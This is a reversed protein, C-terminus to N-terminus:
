LAIRSKKRVKFCFVPLYFLLALISFAMGGITGIAFAFWFVEEPGDFLFPILGLITSIITLMTPNIKHNYAKVWQRIATRSRSRRGRREALSRIDQFQNILYIGANVVIGSLMVFAAFGGQDFPFDFAGFVLFVGIFSVPIMLIVAFPLRVSEFTMACMVYIIAIILLLLWAYQIQKGAGWWYDPVDAKYGVPLVEENMYELAEETFRKGLEYSGIFDYVVNVEYSQNNRSIALGSRRASIDGIQSLKVSTSDVPIATNLIHWLDFGDKESSVLRVDAYEGDQLISGINSDYLPSYLVSYYSYPNVGLAALSPFDYGVHYETLPRSDFGADWIEPASVRRNGSIHELLMDAYGLLDNYNYGNLTIRGSKYGSVVNNNFYSDTIGYISWNAGGLNIAMSTVDAKLKAPITLLAAMAVPSLTTM